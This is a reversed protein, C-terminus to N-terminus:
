IYTKEDAQTDKKLNPLLERVEKITFYEEYKDDLIWKGENISKIYLIYRHFCDEYKQLKVKDFANRKLLLRIGSIYRLISSIDQRSVVCQTAKSSSKSLFTFRKLVDNISAQM